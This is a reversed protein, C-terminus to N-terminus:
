VELFSESAGVIRFSAGNLTLGQQNGTTRRKVFTTPKPLTGTRTIMQAVSYKPACATPVATATTTATSEETTTARPQLQFDRKGPGHGFAPFEFGPVVGLGANAHPAEEVSDFSNEDFLLQAQAGLLLSLAFTGLFRPSLKMKSSPPLDARSGPDPDSSAM